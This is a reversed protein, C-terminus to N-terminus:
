ILDIAHAIARDSLGPSLALTSGDALALTAATDSRELRAAVIAAGTLQDAEVLGRALLLRDGAGPNFDTIRDEGHGRRFIFLDAGRGGTLLDDGAGGTLRDQGRDGRLSDDGGGGLLTDRGLGGYLRDAGTGGDLRDHGGKGLAVDAGRGAAIRDNGGAGLLLDARRALHDGTLHLDRPQRSLGLMTMMDLAGDRAEEDHWTLRGSRADYTWAPATVDLRGEARALQRSPPSDAGFLSALQNAFAGVGVTIQGEVVAGAVLGVAVGALIPLGAIGLGMGGVVLTVGGGVYTGVAGSLVASVLKVSGDRAAAATNGTQAYTEAATAGADILDLVKGAHRAFGRAADEVMDLRFGRSTPGWDVTDDAGRLGALLNHLAPNGFMADDFVRPSVPALDNALDAADLLSSTARAMRGDLRDWWGEAFVREVRVGYDSDPDSNDSLLWDLQVAQVSSGPDVSLYVPDNIYFTEGDIQLRSNQFSDAAFVPDGGPTTASFDGVLDFTFVEGERRDSFRSLDLIVREARPDIKFFM